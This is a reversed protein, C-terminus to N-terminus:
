NKLFGALKLSDSYAFKVRNNGPGKPILYGVLSTSKVVKYIERSNKLFIKQVACFNFDEM